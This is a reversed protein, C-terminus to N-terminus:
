EFDSRNSYGHFGDWELAKFMDRFDYFGNCDIEVDVEGFQNFRSM